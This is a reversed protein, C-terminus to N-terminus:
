NYQRTNKAYSKNKENYWEKSYRIYKNYYLQVKIDIGYILFLSM